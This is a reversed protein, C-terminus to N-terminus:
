CQQHSYVRALFAAAEAAEDEIPQTEDPRPDQAAQMPVARGANEAETEGAQRAARFWFRCWM